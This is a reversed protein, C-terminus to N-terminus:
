KEREMLETLHKLKISERNQQYFSTFYHHNQLFSIQTQNWKEDTLSSNVSQLERFLSEAKQEFSSTGMYELDADAIIEELKNKPTQPIKTAMIMGCVKDVADIAYGYEPLYQRALECSVEEHNAYTHIYGTDHWLAALNLLELETETCNEHRGIEAAKEMVYLTHEHNHYSYSKPLNDKLLSIVFDKMNLKSQM